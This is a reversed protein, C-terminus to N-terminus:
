DGVTKEKVHTPTLKGFKLRPAQKSPSLTVVAFSLGPKCAFNWLYPSGVVRFLRNSRFPMFVILFNDRTPPNFRVPTEALFYSLVGALTIKARLYPLGGVRTVRTVREGQLSAKFGLGRVNRCNGIQALAHVTTLNAVGLMDCRTAFLTVLRVCGTASLLTAIHQTWKNRDDPWPKCICPWCHQCM